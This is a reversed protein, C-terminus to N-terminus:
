SLLIYIHYYYIYFKYFIELFDHSNMYKQIRGQPPPLVPAAVPHLTLRRLHEAVVPVKKKQTVTSVNQNWSNKQHNWSTRSPLVHTYSSSREANVKTADVASVVDPDQSEDNAKTAGGKKVKPVPAPKPPPKFWIHKYSCGLFHTLKSPPEIKIHKSVTAWAKSLQDRPGAIKFDDVYLVMFCRWKPHWYCSCWAEIPEWGESMLKKAAHDEWFAGSQPHGYLALNLRCVPRRM